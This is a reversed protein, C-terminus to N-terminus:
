VYGSVRKDDIIYVLKCMHMICQTHMTDICTSYCSRRVLVASTPLPISARLCLVIGVNGPPATTHKNVTPVCMKYSEYMPVRTQKRSEM